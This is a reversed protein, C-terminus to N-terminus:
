EKFYEGFIGISLGITQFIGLLILWVNREEIKDFKEKKLLHGLGGAGCGIDLITKEEYDGLLKAIADFRGRSIKEYPMRQTNYLKEGM